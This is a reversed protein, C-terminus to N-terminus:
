PNFVVSNYAPLGPVQMTQLCICCLNIFCLAFTCLLCVFCPCLLLSVFCLCLAFVCLLSVFCFCLTFCVFCSVNCGFLRGFMCCLYIFCLAFVCSLLFVFFSCLVFVCLLFLFRCVNCAFSGFLRVLKKPRLLFFSFLCLPRAYLNCLPKM